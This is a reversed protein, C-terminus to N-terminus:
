SLIEEIKQKRIFNSELKFQEYINLTDFLEIQNDSISIENIDEYNGTYWKSFETIHKGNINNYYKHNVRIYQGHIEKTAVGRIDTFTDIVEFATKLIGAIFQKESFIALYHTNSYLVGNLLFCHTGINLEINSYDKHPIKITDITKLHVIKNVDHIKIM